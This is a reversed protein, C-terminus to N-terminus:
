LIKNMLSGWFSSNSKGAQNHQSGTHDMCNEGKGYYQYCAWYYPNDFENSSLIKRISNSFSRLPNESDHLDTYFYEAFVPAVSDPLNWLTNVVTPCGATFFGRVLGFLDDVAEVRIMGSVCANVVALRVKSMDLGYLDLVSISDGRGVQIRSLLPETEDFMGHGSFHLLEAKLLADNPSPYSSVVNINRGFKKKFFSEEQVIGPLQEDEGKVLTLFDMSNCQNKSCISYISASPTISVDYKEILYNKGDFLATFPCRFLFKTPVIVLQRCGALNAEIPKILKNYMGKLHASIRNRDRSHNSIAETFGEVEELYRELCNGSFRVYQPCTDDNKAIFVGQRDDEFCYEVLATGNPLSKLLGSIDVTSAGHNESYLSYRQDIRPQSQDVHLLVASREGQNRNLLKVKRNKLEKYFRENKLRDLLAKRNNHSLYRRMILSKFGEYIQLAELTNGCDINLNILRPITAEYIQLLTGVQLRENEHQSLYEELEIIAQQVLENAESTRRESVFSNIVEFRRLLREGVLPLGFFFDFDQPLGDVEFVYNKDVKKLMSAKSHGDGFYVHQCVAQMLPMMASSNFDSDNEPLCNSMFLYYLARESKGSQFLAFGTEQARAGRIVKTRFYDHELICAKDISPLNRIKEMVMTYSVKDSDEMQGLGGSETIEQWLYFGRESLTSLPFVPRSQEFDVNIISELDSRNSFFFDTFDPFDGFYTFTRSISAFIESYAVEVSVFRVRPDIDSFAGLEKSSLCLVDIFAKQKMEDYYNRCRFLSRSLNREFHDIRYADNPDGMYSVLKTFTTSKLRKMLWRIASAVYKPKVTLIRIPGGCRKDTNIPNYLFMTDTTVVPRCRYYTGFVFQSLAECRFGSNQNAKMVRSHYDELKKKINKKSREYDAAKGGKGFELQLKYDMNSTLNSSEVINPIDVEWLLGDDTSLYMNGGFVVPNVYCWSNESSLETKAVLRGTRIYRAEVYEERVSILMGRYISSYFSEEVDETWVISKNTLDVAVYRRKGRFFLISINNYEGVFTPSEEHCVQLAIEKSKNENRLNYITRNVVFDRSKKELNSATDYFVITDDDPDYGSLIIVENGSANIEIHAWKWFDLFRETTIIATKSATLKGKRDKIHCLQFTAKKDLNQFKFAFFVAVYGKDLPLINMHDDVYGESMLTTYIESMFFPQDYLEVKKSTKVNFFNSGDRKGTFYRVWLSDHSECDIQISLTKLIKDIGVVIDEHNFQENVQPYTWNPNGSVAQMYVRFQESDEAKTLTKIHEGCQWSSADGSAEFLCQAMEFLSVAEAFNGISAATKAWSSLVIPNDPYQNDLEQYKQYAQTYNGQRKLQIAKQIELPLLNVSGTSPKPSNATGKCARYEKKRRSAKGM